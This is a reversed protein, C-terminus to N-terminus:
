GCKNVRSEIISARAFNLSSASVVPLKAIGLKGKKEWENM